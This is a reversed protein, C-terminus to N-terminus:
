VGLSKNGTNATDTNSPNKVKKVTYNDLKVNASLIEKFTLKAILLNAGGDRTFSYDFKILNLSSIVGYPTVIRCIKTSGSYAELNQILNKIGNEYLSWTGGRALEVVFERPKNIKNVSRFSGGEVANEVIQSSKSGNISIFSDFDGIDMWNTDNTSGWILNRVSSISDKIQKKFKTWVNSSNPLLTDEQLVQVTWTNDTIISSVLSVVNSLGAIGIKGLLSLAM